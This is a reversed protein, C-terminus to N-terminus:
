LFSFILTSYGCGPFCPFIHTFLMFAIQWPLMITDQFANQIWLGSFIIDTLLLHILPLSDDFIVRQSASYTHTDNLIYKPFMPM